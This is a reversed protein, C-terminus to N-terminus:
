CWGSQANSCCGTHVTSSRRCICCGYHLQRHSRGSRYSPVPVPPGDLRRLGVLHVELCPHSTFVVCIEGCLRSNKADRKTENLCKRWLFAWIGWLHVFKAVFVGNQVCKRCPTARHQVKAVNKCGFVIKIKIM